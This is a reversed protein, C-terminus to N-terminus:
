VDTGQETETVQFSLPDIFIIRRNLNRAYRVTARTGSRADATDDSYIALLVDCHNVMWRNRKLYYRTDSGKPAMLITKYCCDLIHHYQHQYEPQWKTEQGIFPLVGILRLPLKDQLYLVNESCWMDAGICM